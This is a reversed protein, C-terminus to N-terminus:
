LVKMTKGVRHNGKGQEGPLARVDIQLRDMRNAFPHTGAYLELYQMCSCLISSSYKTLILIWIFELKQTLKFTYHFTESYLM